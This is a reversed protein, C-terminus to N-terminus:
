RSSTRLSSTRLSSVLPEPHVVEPEAPEWTYGLILKAVFGNSGSTLGEGVGANLEVHKVALLDVVEYLYHEQASLPSPGAIPGLDAYYELGFAAVKEVKVKAMAAPEFTPGDRADPPGLPLGVIPNM